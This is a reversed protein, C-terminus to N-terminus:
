HVAPGAGAFVDVDLKLEGRDESFVNSAEQEALSTKVYHQASRRLAAEADAQTQYDSKARFTRMGGDCHGSVCTFTVKFYFSWGGEQREFTTGQLTMTHLAKM